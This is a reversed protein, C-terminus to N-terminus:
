STDPEKVSYIEFHKQLQKMSALLRSDDVVLNCKEDLHIIHDLIISFCIRVYESDDSRKHGDRIAKFIESMHGQTKPPNMKIILDSAEHIKKMIEMRSEYYNSM